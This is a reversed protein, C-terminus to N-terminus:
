CSSALGIRLAALREAAVPETWWRWASLPWPLWPDVGVFRVPEVTPGASDDPCREFRQDVPNFYELKAGEISPQWRLVPVTFPGDLFGVGGTRKLIVHLSEVFSRYSTKITM